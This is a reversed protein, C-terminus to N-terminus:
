FNVTFKCKNISKIWLQQLWIFGKTWEFCTLVFFDLKYGCYLKFCFFRFVPSAVWKVMWSFLLQHYKSFIKVNYWFVRNETEFNGARGPGPKVVWKVLVRTMALIAAYLDRGVWPGYSALLPRFNAAMWPCHQHRCMDWVPFRNLSNWDHTYSRSKSQATQAYGAQTTFRKKSLLKISQNIPQNSLIENRIPFLEAM